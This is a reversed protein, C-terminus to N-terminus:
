PLIREVIVWILHLRRCQSLTHQLAKQFLALMEANASHVSFPNGRQSQTLPFSKRANGFCIWASFPWFPSIFVMDPAQLPMAKSFGILLSLYSSNSSNRNNETRTIIALVEFKQAFYFVFKSFVTSNEGCRLIIKIPVSCFIGLLNLKVFFFM